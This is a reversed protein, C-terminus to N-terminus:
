GCARAGEKEQPVVDHCYVDHAEKSASACVIPCNCKAAMPFRPSVASGEKMKIICTCFFFYLSLSLSLFFLTRAPPSADSSSPPSQRGTSFFLSSRGLRGLDHLSAAGKASWRSRGQPVGRDITDLLLSLPNSRCRGERTPRADM